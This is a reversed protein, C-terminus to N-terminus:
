LPPFFFLLKSYRKSDLVFQNELQLEMTSKENQTTPLYVLIYGISFTYFGMHFWVIEM